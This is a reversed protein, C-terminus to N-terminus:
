FKGTYRSWIQDGLDWYRDVIRECFSFSYDTLYKKAEATHGQYLLRQAEAEVAHQDTFAKEEIPQRVEDVDQRMDGWKQASLDAVRNFAWWGCARNFGPRGCIKYSEPLDTIGAYLPAYVTMAPNDYGLWVLGGVPDPLWGRSQTVTV